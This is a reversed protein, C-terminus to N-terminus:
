FGLGVQLTWNRNKLDGVVDQADSVNQLGFHYRADAWLSLGGLSISVDAGMIGSFDTSKVSDGCDEGGSDCGTNFSLAAGGFVSPRIPGLPLGLKLVAPIELYALDLENVVNEVDLDVGKQSYQAGIQFGLPGSGAWDLFVGGVFGTRNSKDFTQDVDSIDASAVSVGGRIGFTTQAHLGTSYLLGLGVALATGYIRTRM